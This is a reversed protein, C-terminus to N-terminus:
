FGSYVCVAIKCDTTYKRCNALAVARAKAATPGSGHGYSGDTGVALAVYWGNKAWAILRADAPTCHKLAVQKAEALTVYDYAYGYKGTSESYVIAAFHDKEGRRRIEELDQETWRERQKIRNRTNEEDREDARAAAPAQALAALGALLLLALQLATGRCNKM